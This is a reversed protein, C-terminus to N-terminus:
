FLSKFCKPKHHPTMEGCHECPKPTPLASARTQKRHGAARNNKNMTTRTGGRGSLRKGEPTWTHSNRYGQGVEHDPEVAALLMEWDSKGFKTNVQLFKWFTDFFAAVPPIGLQQARDHLKRWKVSLHKKLKRKPEFAPSAPDLKGVPFKELAKCEKALINRRIQAWIFKRGTHNVAWTSPSKSSTAPPPLIPPPQRGRSRSKGRRLGRKRRRHHCSKEAGDVAKEALHCTRQNGMRAGVRLTLKESWRYCIGKRSAGSEYRRRKRRL